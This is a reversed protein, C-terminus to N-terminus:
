LPQDTATTGSEAPSRRYRFSSYQLVPVAPMLVLIAATIMVASNMELDKVDVALFRALATIAIYVPLNGTVQPDQFLDRGNGGTGSSHFGDVLPDGVKELLPFKKGQM